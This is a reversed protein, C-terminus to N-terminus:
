NFEGEARLGNGFGWGVNAYTGVGTDFLAKGGLAPFGRQRLAATVSGSQKLDAKQVWNPGVGAGIYLGTVPMANWGTQAGAPGAALVGAATATAALLSQHLAKGGPNSCSSPRIFM